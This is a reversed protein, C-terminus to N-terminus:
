KRQCEKSCYRVDGCGKCIQLPRPSLTDHYKCPEWSCKRAKAAEVRDREETEMFGLEAGLKVWADIMSQYDPMSALTYRTDRFAELTSYWRTRSNTRMSMALSVPLSHDLGANTRRLDEAWEGVMGSIFPGWVKM